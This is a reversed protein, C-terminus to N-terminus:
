TELHLYSQDSYDWKLNKVTVGTQAVGIWVPDNNEMRLTAWCQGSTDKYAKLEAM